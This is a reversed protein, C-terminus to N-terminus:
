AEELDPVLTEAASEAAMPSSAKDSIVDNTILLTKPLLSAILLPVLPLQRIGMVNDFKYIM